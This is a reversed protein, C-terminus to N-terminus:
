RVDTTLFADEYFEMEYDNFDGKFGVIDFRYFYEGPLSGIYVDSARIMRRMKDVTVADVPEGNEGSRAKVEAFVILDGKQLILDIETKNLKWNRELVVYDQKIYREAAKQEAFKGLQRDRDKKSKFDM